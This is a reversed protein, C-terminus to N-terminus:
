VSQGAAFESPSVAGGESVTAKVPEVPEEPKTEESRGLGLLKKVLDKDGQESDDDIEDRAYLFVPIAVAAAIVAASCAILINRTHNKKPGNEAEDPATPTPASDVPDQEPKDPVNAASM